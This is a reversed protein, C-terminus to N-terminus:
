EEYELIDGPQCQLLHCLKEINAWSIPQGSRISQIAGESLLKEQRLKFTSYGQVKLSELIDDKYRLPM